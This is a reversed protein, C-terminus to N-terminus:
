QFSSLEARVNILSEEVRVKNRIARQADNEAETVRKDASVHSSDWEHWSEMLEAERIDLLDKYSPESSAYSIHIALAAVIAIGFMIGYKKVKPIYKQTDM